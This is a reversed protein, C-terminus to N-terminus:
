YVGHRYTMQTAAAGTVEVVQNSTGGSCTGVIPLGHHPRVTLVQAAGAPSDAAPAAVAAYALYAAREM